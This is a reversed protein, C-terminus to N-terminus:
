ERGGRCYCDAEIFDDEVKEGWALLSIDAKEMPMKEAELRSTM